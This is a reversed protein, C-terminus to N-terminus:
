ESTGMALHFRDQKNRWVLNMWGDAGDGTWLLFFPNYLAYDNPEPNQSKERRQRKNGPLANLHDM